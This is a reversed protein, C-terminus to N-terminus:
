PLRRSITSFTSLSKAFPKSLITGFQKALRTFSFPIPNIVAEFLERIKEPDINNTIFVLRTRHDEDPWRDLVIPDSMVHQVAHVILPHEFNEETAIIGKVRLLRAGASSRLISLFEQVRKGPLPKDNVISFTRIGDGHRPTSQSTNDHSGYSEESIIAEELALWGLVDEGQNVAPILDPLSYLM